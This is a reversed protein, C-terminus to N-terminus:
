YNKVRINGNLGKVAEVLNKWSDRNDAVQMSATEEV